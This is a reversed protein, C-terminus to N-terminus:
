MFNLTLALGLLCLSVLLCLSLSLICTYTEVKSKMLLRLLPTGKSAESDGKESTMRAAMPAGHGSSSSLEYDVDTLLSGRGKPCKGWLCAVECLALPTGPQEV